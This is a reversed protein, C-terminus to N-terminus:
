NVQPSKLSTPFGLSSANVGFSELDFPVSCKSKVREKISLPFLCWREIAGHKSYVLQSNRWCSCASTMVCKVSCTWHFTFLQHKHRKMALQTNFKWLQAAVYWPCLNYHAVELRVAMRHKSCRRVLMCCRLWAVCAHLSFVCAIVVYVCWSQLMCACILVDACLQACM